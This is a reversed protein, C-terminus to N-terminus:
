VGKNWHSFYLADEREIFCTTVKAYRIITMISTDLVYTFLKSKTNSISNLFHFCKSDDPKTTFCLASAYSKCRGYRYDIDTRKCKDLADETGACDVNTMFFRISYRSVYGYAPGVLAKGGLFGLQRCVVTADSDDWGEDCIYGWRGGRWVMVKENTSGSGYLKVAVFIFGMNFFIWSARKM